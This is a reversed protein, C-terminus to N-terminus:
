LYIKFRVFKVRFLGLVFLLRFPSNVVTGFAIVFRDIRLWIFVAVTDTVFTPTNQGLLFCVFTFATLLFSNVRFFILVTVEYTFIASRGKVDIYTAINVQFHQFNPIFCQYEMNIM